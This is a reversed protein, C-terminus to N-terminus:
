STRSSSPIHSSTQFQPHGEGTSTEEVPSPCGCNWVDELWMGLERKSVSKLADWGPIPFGDVLLARSIGAVMRVEDRDFTQILINSPGSVRCLTADTPVASTAM